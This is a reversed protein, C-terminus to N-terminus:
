GTYRDLVRSLLFSSCSCRHHAGARKSGSRRDAHGVIGREPRVTVSTTRPQRTGGARKWRRPDDHDRRNAAMTTTTTRSSPPPLLPTQYLTATTTAAVGGVQVLSWLGVRPADISGGLIAYDHRGRGVVTVRIGEGSFRM